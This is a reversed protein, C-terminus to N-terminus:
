RQLFFTALANDYKSTVQLAVWVSLVFLNVFVSVTLIADKFDRETQALASFNVKNMQKLLKPSSQTRAKMILVKAYAGHKTL